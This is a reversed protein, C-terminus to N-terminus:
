PPIFVTIPTSYAVTSSLLTRTSYLSVTFESTVEYSENSQLGYLDFSCVATFSQNNATGAFDMVCTRLTETSLSAQVWQTVGTPVLYLHEECHGGWDSDQYCVATPDVFPLWAPASAPYAYALFALLLLVELGTATLRSM